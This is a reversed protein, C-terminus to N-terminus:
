KKEMVFRPKLIAIMSPLLLLAGMMNLLLLIALLVGMYAQFKLASFVWLMLGVTLTTAIIVIARGNTKMTNIIATNLDGVKKREELLRGVFYIGYDVGLGIGISSVPYTNVTVGIQYAGMLAFTIINSIALPITLLLGAMVSRFNLSCFIFVGLLALALNLTQSAAIEERVAAEVGVAGGALLYKGGKIQSHHNIYDKVAAIINETTKPMKDRCFIIINCMVFKPEVYEDWAGPETNYVMHRCLYSLVNDEKPMHYWNPNDENSAMLFAPLKDAISSVFMVREQTIMFRRFRNMERLTDGEAIFGGKEGEMVVYLPNLSGLNTTIRLADKNYRHWPWLISSGPFFDGVHLGSAYYFGMVILVVNGALVVWKGKGMIWSGLWALLRDLAGPKNSKERIAKIQAELRKSPRIYSLILPTFLLSLIVTAISWFSCAIAMNQLIPIAAIAVLAIGFADTVIGTVGPAFMTRILTQSATKVEVGKEVEELYRNILQMSHRATMLSILFPLVLILPDLNFGVMSMFGLGWIGSIVAAMIPIFMGRKSRYYLYLLIMICLTTLGLVLIVKKSLDRIYGLHVPEGAINIIHNEDEMEGQLKVFERYVEDYGIEGLEEEFFDVAIKTKKSDWSVYPGYYRSTSYIKRKLDEMEEENRPVNPFMLPSIDMTGSTFKFHKMKSMAISKIKYRDVAPFAELRKSIEKVKTLTKQNFIDGQRVQVMIIVQNAGGFTNRIKNHVKIYPHNQPILDAFNTDVRLKLIKSTTFFGWPNVLQYLFFLTILLIALLIPLRRRMAFDSFKDM